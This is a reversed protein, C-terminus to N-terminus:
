TRTPSCLASTTATGRGTTGASYMWRGRRGRGWEIAVETKIGEYYDMVDVSNERKAVIEFRGELTDEEIGRILRSRAYETATRINERELLKVKNKEYASILM